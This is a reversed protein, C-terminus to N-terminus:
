TRMNHMRDAIKILVVRLDEAIALIMKRLSEAERESASRAAMKEIKTVGDVLLGVHDGFRNAIQERTVPTDEVVDYLLAAVITETDAGLDALIQTVGIPHIIYPEGSRRFQGAHAHEALKYADVVMEM